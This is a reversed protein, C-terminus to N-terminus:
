PGRSAAARPSRRWGRRTVDPRPNRRLRHLRAGSQGRRRRVRGAGRSRRVTGAVTMRRKTMVLDRTVPGEGVLRNHSFPVTRPPSLSVGTPRVQPILPGPEGQARASGQTRHTIRVAYGLVDVHVFAAIRLPGRRTRMQHAVSREAAGLRGRIVVGARAARPVGARRSGRADGPELVPTRRSWCRRRPELGWPTPRELGWPAAPELGWPAARTSPCPRCWPRRLSWGGPRRPSWDGPRRLSWGGPRRPSWGGLRPLSWRYPRYHSPGTRAPV